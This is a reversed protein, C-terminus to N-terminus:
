IGADRFRFGGGSRYSVRPRRARVVGASRLYTQVTKSCLSVGLERAAFNTFDEISLHANALALEALRQAQEENLKKRRGNALRRTEM